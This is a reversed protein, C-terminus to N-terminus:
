DFSFSDFCLNQCPFVGLSLEVKSLIETADCWSLHGANIKKNKKTDEDFWGM